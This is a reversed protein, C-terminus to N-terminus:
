IYFFDQCRHLRVICLHTSFGAFYELCRKKFVSVRRMGAFLFIGESATLSAVTTPGLVAAYKKM